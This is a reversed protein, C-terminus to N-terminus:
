VDKPMVVLENIKAFCSDKIMGFQLAVGESFIMCFNSQCVIITTFIYVLEGTMWTPIGM